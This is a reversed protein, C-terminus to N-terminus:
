PTSGATVRAAARTGARPGAPHYSPHMSTPHAPPAPAGQVWGAPLLRPASAAQLAWPHLLPPPRAGWTLKATATPAMWLAGGGGGPGGGEEVCKPVKTVYNNYGLTNKGYDVQKQRQALRHVTLEEPEDEKAKAQKVSPGGQKGAKPRQQPAAHMPTRAAPARNPAASRM